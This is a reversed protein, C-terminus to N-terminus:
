DNELESERESARESARGSSVVSRCRGVDRSKYVVVGARESERESGRETRPSFLIQPPVLHYRRLFLAVLSHLQRHWIQDGMNFPKTMIVVGQVKKHVFRILSSTGGIHAAEVAYELIEHGGTDLPPRFVLNTKEDFNTKNIYCPVEAVTSVEFHGRAYTCKGAQARSIYCRV